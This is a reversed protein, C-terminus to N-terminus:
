SPPCHGNVWLDAGEPLEDQFRPFFGEPWGPPVGQDVPQNGSGEPAREQGSHTVVALGAWGPSGSDGPGPRLGVLAETWRGQGPAWAAGWGWWWSSQPATLRGWRIEILSQPVEIIVSKKLASRAALELTSIRRSLPKGRRSTDPKM